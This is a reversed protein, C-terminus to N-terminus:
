PSAQKRRSPKRPRPLLDGWSRVRLIQKALAELQELADIKALATPAWSPAPTGFREEGLTLLVKGVGDTVPPSDQRPIVPVEVVKVVQDDRGRVTMM